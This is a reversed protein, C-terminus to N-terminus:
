RRLTSRSRTSTSPLSSMSPRPGPRRPASGSPSDHFHAYAHPTLHTRNSDFGTWDDNERGFRIGPVYMGGMVSRKPLFCNVRSTATALSGTKLVLNQTTFM